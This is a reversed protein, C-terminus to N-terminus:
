IVNRVSVGQSASFREIEPNMRLLRRIDKLIERPDDQQDYRVVVRGEFDILWVSKGDSWAPQTRWQAVQEGPLPQAQGGLRLRSVRPAERGLARHLRWLHDAVDACEDRCDYALIWDDQDGDDLASSTKKLPWEPLAPLEPMLQGHAVREDPIGLRWEVMAWATIVPGAFLIILATLKIKQRLNRSLYRNM